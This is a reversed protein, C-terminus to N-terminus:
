KIKKNKIRKFNNKSFIKNNKLIQEFKRFFYNLHMKLILFYLGLNKLIKRM